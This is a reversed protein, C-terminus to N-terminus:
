QAVLTLHTIRVLAKLLDFSVDRQRGRSHGPLPCTLQEMRERLATLDNMVAKNWLVMEKGMSKIEKLREVVAEAVELVAAPDILQDEYCILALFM